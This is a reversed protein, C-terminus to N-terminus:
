PQWHKALTEDAWPKRSKETEQTRASEMAGTNIHAVNARNAEQAAVAVAAIAGLATLALAALMSLKYQM